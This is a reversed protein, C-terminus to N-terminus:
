DISYTGYDYKNMNEMMDLERKSYFDPVTRSEVKESKSKKIYESKRRKLLPIVNDFFRFQDEITTFINSYVNLTDNIYDCYTGGNYYSFTKTTIFPVFNALLDADLDQKNKKYMLYDITTFM